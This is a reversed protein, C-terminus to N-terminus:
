FNGLAGMAMTAPGSIAPCGQPFQVWWVAPYTGTSDSITGNPFFLYWGDVYQFDLSGTVAGNPGTGSVSASGTGYNCGQSGNGTLTLAWHGALPASGLCDSTVNMTWATPQPLPTAPPAAYTIGATTQNPGCFAVPLTPSDAYIGLTCPTNPNTTWSPSLTPDQPDSLYYTPGGVVDIRACLYVNDGPAAPYTTPAPPLSVQATTAPGTASTTDPYAHDPGNVQIVCTLTATLPTSPTSGPIQVPGGSLTGTLVTSGTVAASSLACAHEPTLAMWVQDAHAPVAVMTAALAALALLQKKV